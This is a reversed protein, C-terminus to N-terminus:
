VFDSRNQKANIHSDLVVKDNSVGACSFDAVVIMERGNPRM